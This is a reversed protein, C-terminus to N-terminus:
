EFSGVQFRLLRYTAWKRSCPLPLSFLAALGELLVIAVEHPQTHPLFILASVIAVVLWHLALLGVAVFSVHLIMESVVDHLDEELLALQLRAELAFSKERFAWLEDM